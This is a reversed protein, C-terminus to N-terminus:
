CDFAHYITSQTLKLFICFSLGTIHGLFCSNIQLRPPLMYCYGPGVSYNSKMYGCADHFNAHLRFIKLGNLLNEVVFSNGIGIIGGYPCTEDIFNLDADTDLTRCVAPFCNKRSSNEPFLKNVHIYNNMVKFLDM